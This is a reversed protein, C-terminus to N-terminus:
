RGAVRDALAAVRSPRGHTLERRDALRYLSYIGRTAIFRIPEPEWDRAPRGVWPLRTLESDRGLVLDRVTRGALNSAAVGDGTYGGAFGLGSASDLAVVPCWDRSAAFVGHWARAVPVGRTSPFLSCLRDVLQEVAHAPVPGERDTRSGFRYPAGGGGIAIRGDATRQSYTYLHAGDLLTERGGWHLQAWHEEGLPETAIMTSSLPLLARRQGPLNPTYGETARIVYRARVEGHDARALGPSIDRVPTSEYVTTGAREAAAALGQVLRAPQVCACHPTYLAGLGGPVAVREQLEDADLLGFSADEGAWAREDAIEARLRALQTESQAVTLSGGHRWDCEISEREVVDGIEAITAQIARAMARPADPGGRRRWAAPSGSVGGYVWGGNRGSAGFGVHEAELVVVELSPDARRLEYATWLGTYGGGVVCVDADRM